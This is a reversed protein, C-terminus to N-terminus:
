LKTKNEIGFLNNCDGSKNIARGGLLNAHEKKVKRASSGCLVFARNQEQILYHVEDLLVPAKQIEDVVVLRGPSLAM